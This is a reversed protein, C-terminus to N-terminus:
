KLRIPWGASTTAYKSLRQRTKEDASADLSHDALISALSRWGSWWRTSFEETLGASTIRLVPRPFDKIQSEWHLTISETQSLDFPAHWCLGRRFLTGDEVIAVSRWAFLSSISLFITCLVTSFGPEEVAFWGCGATLLPLGVRWLVKPRM